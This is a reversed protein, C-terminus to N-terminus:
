SLKEIAIAEAKEQNYAYFPTVVKVVFPNGECDDTYDRVDGLWRKVIVMGNSHLYAWWNPEPQKASLLRQSPSGAGVASTGEIEASKAFWEKSQTLKM